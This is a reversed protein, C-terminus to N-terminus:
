VEELTCTLQCKILTNYIKEMKEKEGRKVDCSGKFHILYTCQEAQQQQHGCYKILCDIVHEFTNYDDNWVIVVYKGEILEDLDSYEQEKYKSM